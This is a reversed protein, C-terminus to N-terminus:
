KEKLGTLKSSSQIKKGLNYIIPIGLEKCTQRERCNKKNIDGGKGLIFNEKPYAWVLRKITENVSRDSDLSLFVEDTNYLSEIIKIREKENMFSKGKKLEAQNDNNVIIWVEDWKNKKLKNAEKIYELHGIHLPDFYGSILIITM